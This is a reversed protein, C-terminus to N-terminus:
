AVTQGSVNTAAQPFQSTLVAGYDYIYACSTATYKEIIFVQIDLRQGCATRAKM